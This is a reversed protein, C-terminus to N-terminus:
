WRFGSRFRRFRGHGLGMNVFGVDQHDAAAHSGGARRDLRALGPDPHQQDVLPEVPAAAGGREGRADELGIHLAVVEVAPDLRVGVRHDVDGRKALADPDGAIQQLRHVAPADLPDLVLAPDLTDVHRDPRQERDVRHHGLAARLEHHREPVLGQAPSDRHDVPHHDGLEQGGVALVRGAPADDAREADAGDLALDVDEPRGRGDEAGPRHMDGIGFRPRPKVAHRDVAGPVPDRRGVPHARLERLHLEEGAPPHDRGLEIGCGPQLHAGPEPDAEGVVLAGLDGTAVADAAEAERTRHDAFVALPAARDVLVGGM